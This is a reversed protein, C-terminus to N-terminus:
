GINLYRIDSQVGVGDSHGGFLLLLDSYVLPVARHLPVDIEGSVTITNQVVDIIFHEAVSQSGTWGGITILFDGYVVVNFAEMTFGLRESLVAWEHTMSANTFEVTDLLGPDGRGGIVYIKDTNVACTPDNRATNLDPGVAEDLWSGADLDYM